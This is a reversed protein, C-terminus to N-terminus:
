KGEDLKEGKEDSNLHEKNLNNFVEFLKNFAEISINEINELNTHDNLIDLDRKYEGRALKLLTSASMEYVEVEQEDFEVIEKKRFLNM